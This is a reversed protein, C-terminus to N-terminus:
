PNSSGPGPPHGTAEFNVRDKRERDGRPLVHAVLLRPWVRRVHLTIQRFGGDEVEVPRQDVGDIKVRECPVFRHHIEAVVDAELLGAALDALAAVLKNGLEQRLLRLPVV